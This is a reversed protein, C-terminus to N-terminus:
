AQLRSLIKAKLGHIKKKRVQFRSRPVKFQSLPRLSPLSSGIGGAM